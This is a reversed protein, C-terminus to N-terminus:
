YCVYRHIALTIGIYIKMSSVTLDPQANGQWPDVYEKNGFRMRVFPRRSNKRILWTMVAWIEAM